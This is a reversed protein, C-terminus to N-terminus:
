MTTRSPKRISSSFPVNFNDTVGLGSTFCDIFRQLKM